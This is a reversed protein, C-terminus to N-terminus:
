EDVNTHPPVLKATTKLFQGTLYGGAVATKTGAGNRSTLSKFESELYHGANSNLLYASLPNHTTAVFGGSIEKWQQLTSALGCDKSYM